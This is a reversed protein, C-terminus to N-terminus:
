NKTKLKISVMGPKNGTATQSDSSFIISDIEKESIMNLQKVDEAKDSSLVTGDYIFYILRSDDSKHAMLYSKYEKSFKAFKSLYEKGVKVTFDKLGAKTTVQIVGNKGDEGYQASASAGNLVNISEIDKPNIAKVKTSDSKVGDVIYLPQPRPHMDGDLRVRTSKSKEGAKTTVKIVGNSGESGYLATASTDKLVDISEIEKPDIAKAKTADTKIGDVVYLPENAPPALKADPKILTKAGKLGAKTTVLVVGNMGESGYLATANADKLVSISEIEQPNIASVRRKDAKVGDIIYLPELSKTASADSALINVTGAAAKTSIIIVGDKAEEGYQATSAKDKLVSISKISDAKIDELQGEYKKGDLIVLGPKKDGFTGRWKVPLDSKPSEQAMAGVSAFLCIALLLKKM